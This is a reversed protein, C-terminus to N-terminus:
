ILESNAVNICFGIGVSTVDVVNIISEADVEIFSFIVVVDGVLLVICM